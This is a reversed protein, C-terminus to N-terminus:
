IPFTSSLLPSHVLLPASIPIDPPRNSCAQTVQREYTQGDATFVPDQMIEQTIPCFFSSMDVIVEDKSLSVEPAKAKEKGKRRSSASSEPASAPLSARGNSSPLSTQDVGMATLAASMALEPPHTGRDAGEGSEALAAEAQRAAEEVGIATSRDPPSPPPTPPPNPIPPAKHMSPFPDFSDVPLKDTSGSARKLKEGSVHFSVNRSPPRPRGEVEVSPAAAPQSRTKLSAEGSPPSSRPPPSGGKKVPPSGGRKPAPSEGRKRGPARYGCRMPPSRQKALMVQHAQDTDGRRNLQSGLLRRLTVHSHHAVRTLALLSRICIQRVGCQLQSPECWIVLCVPSSYLASNFGLDDLRIVVACIPVEQASSLAQIHKKATELLLPLHTFSHPSIYRPTLSTLPLTHPPM